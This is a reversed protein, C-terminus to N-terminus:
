GSDREQVDTCDFKMPRRVLRGIKWTIAPRLERHDAAGVHAFRAQDVGDQLPLGHGADALSRALGLCHLEIEDIVLEVEDVERTVPVCFHRFTQHFVPARQHAAIEFAGRVQAQDKEQEVRPARLRPLVIQLHV